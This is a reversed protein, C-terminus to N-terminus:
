KMKMNKMASDSMNQMDHNQKENKNDMNMGQMSSTGAKLNSESDILFQSSTVITDGVQLGEKVEYWSDALAGLKVEVSKFKGEGLSLVIIDRTGSHIVSQEPVAIAEASAAPIINVTVYMDKKLATKPNPFDIRVKATRTQEQLYPYIYSVKGSLIKGAEYPLEVNASNGTAVLQLENEYVDAFVWIQSLDAIKLLNTGAQVQMGEVVNKEVVYGDFPSYFTLAKKIEGTQEIQKIQEPSVDWYSLKKKASQILMDSNLAVSADGMKNKFQIAQLYEQEAAVL